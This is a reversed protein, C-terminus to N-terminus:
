AAGEAVAQALTALAAMAPSERHRIMGTPVRAIDEPVTEITVDAAHASQEIVRRPM